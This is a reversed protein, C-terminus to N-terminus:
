EKRTGIISEFARAYRNATCVECVEAECSPDHLDDRMEAVLETLSDFIPTADQVILWSGRAKWMGLLDALTPKSPETM